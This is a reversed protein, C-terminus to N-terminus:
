ITFMEWPLYMQLIEVIPLIWLTSMGGFRICGYNGECYSLDLTQVDKVMDLNGVNKCLSLTHKESKGLRKCSNENCVFSNSFECNFFLFERFKHFGLSDQIVPGDGNFILGHFNSLRNFEQEKRFDQFM